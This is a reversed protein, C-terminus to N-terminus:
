SKTLNIRIGIRKNMQKEKNKNKLPSDNKNLFTFLPGM